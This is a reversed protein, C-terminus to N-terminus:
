ESYIAEKTTDIGSAALVHQILKLPVSRDAIEENTYDLSGFDSPYKDTMSRYVIEQADRPSNGSVNLIRAAIAAKVGILWNRFEDEGFRIATQSISRNKTYKNKVPLMVQSVYGLEVANTYPVKNILYIYKSGICEPKFSTVTRYRTKDIPYTYTVRSVRYNYKEKMYRVHAPGFHEKTSPVHLYIGKERWEKVAQERQSYTLDRILKGYDNDFDFIYNTIYTYAKNVDLEMSDKIVLWSLRNFFQEYLQSINMRNPISNSNIIIDARMGYEDIPMHEDPWIDAVVGKSGDRGTLKSGLGLPKEIAITIKLTCLDIQSGKNFIFKPRKIKKNKLINVYSINSSNPMLLSYKALDNIMKSTFKSEQNDEYIKLIENYYNYINHQYKAVQRYVSSDSQIDKWRNPNTYVEVDIVKAGPDVRYPIDSLPNFVKLKDETYDSILGNEKIPRIAALIGSENVYEGIDPFFKHEGEKTGYINLPIQDEEIPIEIEYMHTMTMKNAFSESVIFADATTTLVPLYVVNGNCGMKYLNGEKAPSEQFITGKEIRRGYTLLKKNIIKKYYGFGRSLYRYDSVDFSGIKKDDVGQYIVTFTPNHSIRYDGHFDGYKNIVKLVIYDQKIHDREFTYDGFTSEIGSFIQPFEAYKVECWQTLNKSMMSLRQSSTFNTFVGSAIEHGIMNWSYIMKHCYDHM